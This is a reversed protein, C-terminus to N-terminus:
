LAETHVSTAQRATWEVMGLAAHSGIWLFRLPRDRRNFPAIQQHARTLDAILNDMQVPTLRDMFFDVMADFRAGYSNNDIAIIADNTPSVVARPVVSRPRTRAEVSRQQAATLLAVKSNTPEV